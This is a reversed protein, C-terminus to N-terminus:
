KIEVALFFQVALLSSQRTTFSEAPDTLLDSDQIMQCNQSTKVPPPWERARPGVAGSGPIPKMTRSPGALLALTLASTYVPNHLSGGSKLSVEVPYHDSVGLAPVGPEGYTQPRSCRGCRRDAVGHLVLRESPVLRVATVQQETLRYASPFVFATASHPVIAKSFANGHVVIRDYACDTSQRVTTDTDDSILWDFSQDTLLRVDKRYKKPLYRCDANFDGLFMVNETTWMERVVKFVDYLSDIEKTANEPSTHVAILVFAKIATSPARFRVAFPERSFLDNSDPYQYQDVVAARATRYVFVYQEQYVGRGLRESAVSGYEYRGYRNLQSLLKPFAKNKSDRVEQLVCVDCRAIIKVLMKMVEPNNAKSEGFGHLNFACIKFGSAGLVGCVGWLSLLFHYCGMPVNLDDFSHTNGPAGSLHPPVSPPRGKGPQTERLDHPRQILRAYAAATGAEQCRRKNVANLERKVHRLQSPGCFSPGRGALWSLFAAGAERRVRAMGYHKALLDLVFHIAPGSGDETSQPTEKCKM